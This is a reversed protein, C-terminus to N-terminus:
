NTKTRLIVLALGAVIAVAGAVPHFVITHPRQVDIHLPGADVVREVTFYTITQFGLAVVGFVILLVGISALVRM